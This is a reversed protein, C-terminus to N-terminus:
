THPLNTSGGWGELPPLKSNLIKLLQEEIFDIQSLPFLLFPSVCIEKGGKRKEAKLGVRLYIDSVYDLENFVGTRDYIGISDNAM